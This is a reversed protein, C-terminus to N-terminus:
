IRQKIRSPLAILTDSYQSIEERGKILNESPFIGNDEM